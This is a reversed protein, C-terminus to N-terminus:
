REAARELKQLTNKLAEIREAAISRVDSEPYTRVFHEYAALRQKLKQVDREFGINDAYIARYLINDSLPNEPYTNVFNEFRRFMAARLEQWDEREEGPIQELGLLRAEALEAYVTGPFEQILSDAVMKTADYPYPSFTYYRKTYLEIALDALRSDLRPNSPLLEIEIRNSMLPELSGAIHIAAIQLSYRGPPLLWDRAKDPGPYRSDFANLLCFYREGNLEQGPELTRGVAWSEHFGTTGPDTSKTVLNDDSDYIEVAFILAAPFEESRWADQTENSINEIEIRLLLPECYELQHRYPEIRLEWFDGGPRTRQAESKASFCASVSLVLIVAALRNM